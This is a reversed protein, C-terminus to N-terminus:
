NIALTIGAPSSFGGIQLQVAAAPNAALSLPIQVQVMLLGAVQGAVGGASQVAAAQGGVTVSVPLVPKPPNSGNIAGDAAVPTTEGEGTAFLTVISGRAAPNSASNASGDANLARAQGTGSSNSSFIAPAAGALPVTLPATARGQYQISVQAQSGTLEYPVIASIQGASSYLLPAPIGNFFAQVGGLQTAVRGSSDPQFQAPQSPGLGAGYIAVIEGPAISGTQGSAANSVALIFASSTVPSIERIANNASDSIFLNGSSDLALGWPVNLEATTALLGDGTYCCNGNGAITNIIGDTTVKRVRNGGSDTIYLNGSSDVAVGKPAAIGAQTAPGGDGLPIIHPGPGTLPPTGAVTTIVGNPGVKRVCGSGEDTFFVNGAADVAVSTPLSINAGTAQGGEGSFGAVGSGALTHILNDAATIYRIRLSLTDAIYVNFSSDVAVGRPAHLSASTAQGEDGAFAANGNGAETLMTGDPTVVRIRNNGSDAIYLNNHSDVAVAMPQKLQASTAPGFDGSYGPTGNGAVTTIIGAPSIRRVRHNASDAVYLNGSTDFAMGAPTNLQARTAPGNDGAYSELGNGAASTAIGDSVKWVRYDGNTLGSGSGITGEAFYVNGSPDVAVGTPGNFRISNAAQGPTPAIGSDSGAITTITGNSVMRIRSSGLDAIFVNGSRDAAVDTPLFLTAQAAPGGDGSYGPFGTGALTSIIGAASVMRVRQNLTDAIYLNGSLDAAVGEPGGLDASTAPVGDNTYGQEGSGAVTSVTGDKAIKRIRQNGTDAVYLNGASDFALGSPGNFQAASAPGADGAFGSTMSGAIVNITGDTSIRRIYNANRDTFYLNGASDLAIGWPYSVQASTAPGGDGSFGERGTGGICTLNGSPDVKFIAHGGAFYMNGASDVAARPPDGISSQAAPAPTVPPAGGAATFIVYQQGVLATASFLCVSLFRYM